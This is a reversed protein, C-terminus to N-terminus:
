PNRRCSDLRMKKANERLRTGAALSIEYFEDEFQGIREHTSLPAASDDNPQGAGGIQRCRIGAPCADSVVDFQEIRPTLRGCEAKVTQRNYV